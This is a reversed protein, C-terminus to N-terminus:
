SCGGVVPKVQLSHIVDIHRAASSVHAANFWKHLFGRPGSQSNVPEVCIQLDFFPHDSRIRKWEDPICDPWESDRIISENGAVYLSRLAGMEYLYDPNFDTLNNRRVDLDHLYTLDVIQPPVPGSLGNQVLTLSDVEGSSDVGYWMGIPAETLWNASNVWNPGNTAHYFAELAIREHTGKEKRDEIPSGSCTMMGLSALDHLRTVNLLEDSVCGSFDNGGGLYLEGITYTLNGHQRNTGITEPITGTLRNGWLNIAGLRNLKGLEPPITGSLRNNGLDLHALKVLEGIEPPILGELANSQLYIGWLEKMEGIQPSLNGSLRNYALNMERLKALDGIESPIADELQNESLDLNELSALNGITSPIPGSLRNKRLSLWSLNVLDGLDDPIPGELQNGTLRITELNTLKGIDQPIPGSLQNWEMYIHKLQRLEAIEPPLEGNLNNDSLSILEVRGLPDVSVGHWKRIPSDTNWGLQNIWNPGDTAHYLAILAARDEASEAIECYVVYIKHIDSSYRIAGPDSPDCPGLHKDGSYLEEYLKELPASRVSTEPFSGKLPNESLSLYSLSPLSGLNAPIQGTLQNFSLDLLQLSEISGLEDPIPGNLNNGSLYLRVVNGCDDTEVGLWEALPADTLWNDNIYWNEGDTAKYIAILANREQDM